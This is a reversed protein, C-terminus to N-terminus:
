ERSYLNVRYSVQLRLATLNAQSGGHLCYFLTEGALCIPANSDNFTWTGPIIPGAAANPAFAILGARLTDVSAALSGSASSGGQAQALALFAWSAANAFPASPNVTAFGPCDVTVLAVHGEMGAPTTFLPIVVNGTTGDTQGGAQAFISRQQRPRHDYARIAALIVAREGVTLGDVEELRDVLSPALHEPRLEVTGRGEVQAAQGPEAVPLGPVIESGPLPAGEHLPLHEFVGM